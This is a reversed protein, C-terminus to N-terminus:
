MSLPITITTTQVLRCLCIDGGALLEIDYGPPCPNILSGCEMVSLPPAPTQGPYAGHSEESQISKPIDAIDNDARAHRPQLKLLTSTTLTSPCAVKTAVGDESTPTPTTDHPHVLAPVGVKVDAALHDTEGGDAPRRDLTDTDTDFPNNDSVEM